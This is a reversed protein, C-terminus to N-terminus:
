KGAGGHGMGAQRAERGGRVHRHGTGGWGENGLRQRAGAEATTIGLRVRMRCCWGLM